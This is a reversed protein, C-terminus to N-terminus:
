LKINSIVTLWFRGTDKKHSSSSSNRCVTHFVHFRRALYIFIFNNMGEGEASMCVCKTSTM